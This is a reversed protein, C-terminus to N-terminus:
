NKSERLVRLSEDQFLGEEFPSSTSSQLLYPSTEPTTLWHPQPALINLQLVFFSSIVFALRKKISFAMVMQTPCTTYRQHMNVSLSRSHCVPYVATLILYVLSICTSTLTWVVKFLLPLTDPSAWDVCSSVAVCPMRATPLQYHSCVSEDAVWTKIKWVVVKGSLVLASVWLSLMYSKYRRWNRHKWHKRNLCVSNLHARTLVHEEPFDAWLSSGQASGIFDALQM